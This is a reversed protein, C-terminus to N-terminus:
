PEHFSGGRDRSRADPGHVRYPAPAGAGARACRPGVKGRNMSLGKNRVSRSVAWSGNAGIGEGARDPVRPSLSPTLALWPEHLSDRANNM